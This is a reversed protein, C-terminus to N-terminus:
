GSTTGATRTTPKLGRRRQVDWEDDVYWNTVTRRTRDMRSYVVWDIDVGGLGSLIPPLAAVRSRASANPREDVPTVNILVQPVYLRGRQRPLNRSAYFSLCVALERPFNAAPALGTNKIVDAEPFHPPAPDDWNYLKVRVERSGPSVLWNSIGTALDNALGSWNTGGAEAVAGQNFWPTMIFKDRPATSTAAVEIQARILPM